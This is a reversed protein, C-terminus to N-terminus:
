KRFRVARGEGLMRTASASQYHVLVVADAGIAKAKQRLIANVDERTATGVVKQAVGQVTGVVVYPRDTINVTSIIIGNDTTTEDVAVTGDQTMPPFSQVPGSTGACAALLLALGLGISNKNKM